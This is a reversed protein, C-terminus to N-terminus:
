DKEFYTNEQVAIPAGLGSEIGYGLNAICQLNAKRMKTQHGAFFLFQALYELKNGM